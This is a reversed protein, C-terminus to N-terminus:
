LGVLEADVGRQRVAELIASPKTANTDFDVLMLHPTKENIRADIVGPDQATDQLLKNIAEDDLTADIHILVDGNYM